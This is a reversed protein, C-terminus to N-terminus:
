RRVEVLGFIDSFMVYLFYKLFIPSIIPIYSTSLFIPNPGLIYSNLLFIPIPQCGSTILEGSGNPEFPSSIPHCHYPMRGDTRLKLSRRRQFRKALWLWIIYMYSADMPLPFWHTYLFDLDCSWSPWWAWIHYFGKLIKKELVPPSIEVFSPM